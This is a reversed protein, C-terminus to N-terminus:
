EYDILVSSKPPLQIRFEATTSDLFSGKNFPLSKKKGAISVMVQGKDNPLILEVNAYVRFSNNNEIEAHIANGSKKYALGFKHNGFRLGDWKFGSSPSFPRFKM